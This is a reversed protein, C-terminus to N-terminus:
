KSSDFILEEIMIVILKNENLKGHSYLPTYGKNEYEEIQIKIDEQRSKLKELLAKLEEM